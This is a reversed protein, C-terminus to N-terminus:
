EVLRSNATRVTLTRTKKYKPNVKFDIINEVCM